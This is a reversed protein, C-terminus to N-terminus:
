KFIKYSHLFYFNQKFYKKFSLKFHIIIVYIKLFSLYHFTHEFTLLTM